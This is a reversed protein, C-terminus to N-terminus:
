EGHRRAIQEIAGAAGEAVRAGWATVGPDRQRLAELRPLASSDGLSGLAMCAFYRVGSDEDDLAALLAGAAAPDGRANPDRLARLLPDLVPQRRLYGLTRVAWARMSWDPDDLLALVAPVGPKGLAIFAQMVAHRLHGDGHRAADLLPGVAAAAKLRGLAVAARERVLLDEGRDALAHLLPPVARRDRLRGLSEAAFERLLTDREAFAALLPEVARRDRFRGLWNAAQRRVALDADVLAAILPEVAREDRLLGLAYIGLERVRPDHDGLLGLLAPVAPPGVRRLASAAEHLVLGERQVQASIRAVRGAVAEEGGAVAAPVAEPAAEGRLVLRVRRAHGAERRDLYVAVATRGPQWDLLETEGDIGNGLVLGLRGVAIEGTGAPEGGPDGEGRYVIVEVNRDNEVAFAVGHEGFVTEGSDPEWQPYGTDAAADRLSLQSYSSYFTGRYIERLRSPSM